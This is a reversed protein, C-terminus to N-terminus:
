PIRCSCSLSSIERALSARAVMPAREFFNMGRRETILDLSEEGLEVLGIAMLCEDQNALDISRKVSGKM